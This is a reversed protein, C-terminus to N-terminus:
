PVKYFLFFRIDGLHYATKVMVFRKEANLGVSQMLQYARYCQWWDWYSKLAEYLLENIVARKQVESLDRFIRAQKLAARRKDIILNQLLPVSFGIYNVSGKTEQPNLRNGSLKEAGAYIDIGYWSPIKIETLEQNYYTIGYFDKVNKGTSFVPDFFGQASIIDAKAIRENLEAQKAVPHYKKIIAVLAEPSFFKTQASSLLPLFLIINLVAKM